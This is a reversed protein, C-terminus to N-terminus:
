AKFESRLSFAKTKKKNKGHGPTEGEGKGKQPLQEGFEASVTLEMGVGATNARFSPYVLIPSLERTAPLESHGLDHTM